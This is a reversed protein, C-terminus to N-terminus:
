RLADWESLDDWWGDKGPRRSARLLGLIHAAKGALERMGQAEAAQRAWEVAPLSWIGIGGGAWTALKGDDLQKEAESLGLGEDLWSLAYGVQAGKQTIRWGHRLVNLSLGDAMEKALPNGSLRYFAAYGVCALADQWPVWYAHQGKLVRPDPRMVSMTRVKDTPLERHQWYPLHALQMRLHMRQLLDADGTCLYYWCGALMCRGAARPAGSKSTVQGEKITQCAMFLQVDNEIERLAWHKGTLLYYACLYNSSWHQRDKGAWGHSDFKPQPAPKGLRDVSVKSNWHTRGNWVVWDPHDSAQLPEGNGEFMHVPRCAEQLVSLEVEWLFSPLGSRAVPSLKLLGFDAQNGTQGPYKALSFPYHQFPNGTTQSQRAFNAHRKAMARRGLNGRLWPPSQPVLGFPGFAQSDSWTTAALLPCTAAAIASSSEPNEADAATPLLVGTRRIGQGDGLSANQLISYQIGDERTQKSMGLAPGHYFQLDMGQCQLSLLEVERQMDSSNPDSFFVAIDLPMIEQNHYRTLIVEALLGSDGLRCRLLTVQRAPNEELLCVLEPKGIFEQQGNQLVFRLDLEASPDSDFKTDLEPGPGAQLLLKRESLGQMAMPFFCLAQRWSGDDWRAGFPQWVTPLGQVHLDPSETVQGKAFPVVVQAWEERAAPALNQVTIWRQEQKPEPTTEQSREQPQEQAPLLCAFVFLLALMTSNRYSAPDFWPM